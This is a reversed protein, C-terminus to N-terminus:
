SVLLRMWATSEFNKYLVNARDRNEFKLVKPRSEEGSFESAAAKDMFLISLSSHYSVDIKLDGDPLVPHTM